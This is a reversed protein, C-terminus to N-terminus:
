FCKFDWTKKSFEIFCLREMLIWWQFHFYKSRSLFIGHTKKVRCFQSVVSWSSPRSYIFHPLVLGIGCCFFSISSVHRLRRTLISKQHCLWGAIGDPCVIFFSVGWDVKSLELRTSALEEESDVLAPIARSFIEVFFSPFFIYSGSSPFSTSCFTNWVYFRAAVFRKSYLWSTPWALRTERGRGSM